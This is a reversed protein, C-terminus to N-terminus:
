KQRWKEPTIFSGEWIGIRNRRAYEEDGVYEKSYRRYATAWGLRVMLKGVDEPGSYCKAVFRGYRDKNMTKCKIEKPIKTIISLTKKAEEGCSYNNKNRLCKQNIEPADIGHLRIRYEKIRLTDGDVITPKGIIDKAEAIPTILIIILVIWM